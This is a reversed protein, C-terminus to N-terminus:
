GAILCLPFEIKPPVGSYNLGSLPFCVNAFIHGNKTATTRPALTFRVVGIAPVGLSNLRPGVCDGTLRILWGFVTGRSRHDLDSNGTGFFDADETWVPCAITMACALVPWDDADRMSIRQLAQVKLGAYVGLELPRVIAELADLVTLASQANM